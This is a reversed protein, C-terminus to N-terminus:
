QGTEECRNPSIEGMFIRPSLPRDAAALGPQEGLDFFASRAAPPDDLGPALRAM